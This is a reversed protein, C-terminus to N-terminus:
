FPIENEAELRAAQAALWADRRREYKNYARGDGTKQWSVAAADMDIAAQCERRLLRNREKLSAILKNQKEVKDEEGAAPRDTEDAEQEEWLMRAFESVIGGLATLINSVEVGVPIAQWIALRIRTLEERRQQKTMPKEGTDVKIVVQSM